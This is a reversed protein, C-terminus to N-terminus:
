EPSSRRTFFPLHRALSVCAMLIDGLEDESPEARLEAIEEHLKSWAGDVNAYTFGARAARKQMQLALTLTSPVDEDPAPPGSEFVVVLRGFLAM